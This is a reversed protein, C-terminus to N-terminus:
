ELRTTPWDPPPVAIVGDIMTAQFFRPTAKLRRGAHSEIVDFDDLSGPSFCVDHFMLGLDHTGGIQSKPLPGDVWGFDCHFERCGLYPRQFCQGKVARRKFMNFHKEIQDTPDRLGIRAEILYAVDRLLTTARQQRVDEIILGLTVAYGNMAKTASNSSAKSGVENRRLNAFRIPQLVHLREIIWYMSPNWYIAELIGRAAAPTIAEYSVREAKFEPRTFCAHEGWVKLCIPSRM